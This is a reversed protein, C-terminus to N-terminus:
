FYTQTLKAASLRDTRLNECHNSIFRLARRELSHKPKTQQQLDGEELGKRQFRLWLLLKMLEVRDAPARFVLLEIETM